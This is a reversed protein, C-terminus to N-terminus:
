RIELRVSGLVHRGSVSRIFVLLNDVVSSYFYDAAGGDILVGEVQWGVQDVSVASYIRSAGGQVDLNDGVFYMRTLGPAVPQITPSYVSRRAAPGVQRTTLRPELYTWHLQDSSRWETIQFERGPPRTREYSGVIMRWTGPGPQDVVMGEGAPWPPLESDEPPLVGGNSLRVGPEKVWRKEDQSVASFVQWGYCADSGAAYYMRWGPADNRPSIAVNELGTGQLSCPEPDHRLVIGDYQFSTGDSSVLRHLDGLKGELPFPADRYAAVYLDLSGRSNRVLTPAWPATGRPLSDLALPLAPDSLVVPRIAVVVPLTARYPGASVSLTDHGSSRAILGDCTTGQVMGAAPSVTTPLVLANGAEDFARCSLPFRADAAISVIPGAGSLTLVLSDRAQLVSVKVSDQLTASRAVVHTEGDGVSWLRGQADVKVVTSNRSVLEVADPVVPRGDEDTAIISLQLTDGIVPFHLASDPLLELSTLGPSLGDGCGVALGLGLFVLPRM